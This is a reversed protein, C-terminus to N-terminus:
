GLYHSTVLCKICLFARGVNHNLFLAKSTRNFFFHNLLHAHISTPSSTLLCYCKNQHSTITTATVLFAVMSILNVPSCSYMHSTGGTFARHTIWSLFTGIGACRAINDNAVVWVVADSSHGARGASAPCCLNMFLASTLCRRFEDRTGIKWLALGEQSEQSINATIVSVATIELLWFRWHTM